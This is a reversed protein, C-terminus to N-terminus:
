PYEPHLSEVPTEDPLQGAYGKYIVLPDEMTYGNDTHAVWDDVLGRLKRLTDFHAPDRALNNVEHPDNELDYLEEVPKRDAAFLQQAPALKGAKKLDLILSWTPYQSLKYANYQMYPIAPFYNRIYKWNRTRVSRMRDTSMDCRDRAAFVHDRGPSQPDLFNRGQMVPLPKIGAMGLLTASVDIGEIMQNDVQNKRSGDPWRIILPVHTGPDYLFQKGRSLCRGNDGMFVIITSDMLGDSELRSLVDGLYSDMLMVADLYNAMEDRVVPHDPYYPPVPIADPDAVQPVREKDERCLTWGIGKHSEQITLQAFFPQGEGRDNWDPGDFVGKVLFNLDTKGSGGAGTPLRNGDNDKKKGQTVNCTFYGAARFYDTIPYVGEPLPRKMEMFTRHNHSGITTQYMGTMLASRSASCVPATTFCHTYRVGERALRDANPTRIYPSAWNETYCSLEPSIDEALIFLINPADPGAPQVHDLTSAARAPTIWLSLPLVLLFLTLHKMM